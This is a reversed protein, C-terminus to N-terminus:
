GSMKSFVVGGILKILPAISTVCSLAKRFKSPQIPKNNELADSLLSIVEKLSEKDSLSSQEILQFAEDADIGNTINVTNNNGINFGSSNNINIVPSQSAAERTQNEFYIKGPYLLLAFGYGSDDLYANVFGQSSLLNLIQAVDFSNLRPFCTLLQDTTIRVGPNQKDCDIIYKLVAESTNDLSM